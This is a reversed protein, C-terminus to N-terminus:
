RNADVRNLDQAAIPCTQVGGAKELLLERTRFGGIGHSNEWRSRSMVQVLRRERWILPCQRESTEPPRM